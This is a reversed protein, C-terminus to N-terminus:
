RKKKKGYGFFSKVHGLVSKKATIPPTIPPPISAKFPKLDTPTYRVVRESGLNKANGIVTERIPLLAVKALGHDKTTIDDGVPVVM